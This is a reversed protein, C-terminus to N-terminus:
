ASEDHSIAEAVWVDCSRLQEGPRRVVTFPVVVDLEDIARVEDDPAQAKLAAARPDPEDAPMM